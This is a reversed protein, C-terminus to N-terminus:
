VRIRRRRRRRGRRDQRVVPRPRRRRCGPRRHRAAMRRRRRRRLAHRAARGSSTPAPRVARRSPTHRPPHHGRQDRPVAPDRHAWRGDAAVLFMEDRARVDDPDCVYIMKGIEIALEIVAEMNPARETGYADLSCTPRPAASCGASQSHGAPCATASAGSGCWRADDCVIAVDDGPVAVGEEDRMAKCSSLTTPPSTRAESRRVLVQRGSGAPLLGSLSLSTTGTSPSRGTSTADSLSAVRTGSVPPM